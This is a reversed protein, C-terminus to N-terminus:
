IKNKKLKVPIIDSAPQTAVSRQNKDIVISVENSDTPIEVNNIDKNKITIKEFITDNVLDILEGSQQLQQATKLTVLNPKGLDGRLSDTYRRTISLDSLKQQNIFLNLDKKTILLNELTEVLLTEATKGSTNKLNDRYQADVSLYKIIAEPMRKDILEYEFSHSSNLIKIDEDTFKVEKISHYLNQAVQPLDLVMHKLEISNGLQLNLKLLMKDILKNKSISKLIETEQLYGELSAKIELLESKECIALMKDHYFLANDEKLFIGKDKASRLWTHKNVHLFNEKTLLDAYLKKAYPYKEPNINTILEKGQPSLLVLSLNEYSLLLDRQVLENILEAPSTTLNNYLKELTLLNLKKGLFYGNKQAELVRHIENNELANMVEQDLNKYYKNRLSLGLLNGIKMFFNAKIFNEKEFPLKLVVVPEIISKLDQYIENYTKNEDYDEDDYKLNIQTKNLSNYVNNNFKEYKEKENIQTKNLSSYVNNHFKEYKEKENIKNIIKSNKLSENYEEEEEADEEDYDYNEEEIDDKVKNFKTVSDEKLLDDYHKEIQKSMELSEDEKIKQYLYNLEEEKLKNLDNKPNENMNTPM